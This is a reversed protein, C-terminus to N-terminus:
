ATCGPACWRPGYGRGPITVERTLRHLGSRVVSSWVGEWTDGSELTLERRKLYLFIGGMVITAGIMALFDLQIMVIFCALSGIISISRPIKFDPRFDTSAWSELACSLNLFGYTTIFFMSVVRAIVNLEGILIGSEAILFTLLLANRPENEKGHGKAFFKPTIRDVSTAQLIRPAGLISGMASSFTASLIGITVLLPVLAIKLLVNTDNALANPDVTYAFFAPLAIYAILGVLIASITGVPISKKPDKLDGSMSVGAEFGTVAPFFIGFLVM